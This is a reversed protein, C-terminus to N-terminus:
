TVPPLCAATNHVWHRRALRDRTRVVEFPRGIDIRVSFRLHLTTATPM